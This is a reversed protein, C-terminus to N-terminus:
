NVDEYQNVFDVLIAELGIKEIASLEKKFPEFNKECDKSIVFLNNYYNANAM